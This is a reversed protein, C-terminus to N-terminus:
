QGVVIYGAWDMPHAFPCHDESVNLGNQQTEPAPPQEVDFRRMAVLADTLMGEKRLEKVTVSRLWRQAESLARSPHMLENGNEDLYHKFFRSCLLMAADDYVAWLSCIVAQAGALLLAAPLGIHEDPLTTASSIGSECSSLYVLRTNRLYGAGSLLRKVTLRKGGGLDIGSDLANKWDYQSHCAVHLVSAHQAEQLFTELTASTGFLATVRESGLTKRIHAVEEASYKLETFSSNLPRSVSLVHSLGRSDDRRRLSSLSPVGTTNWHEGFHTGDALVGSVVPLQNLEGPLSFVIRCTQSVGLSILFDHVPQLLVSGLLELVEHIVMNWQLTSAPLQTNGFRDLFTEGGLALRKYTDHWRTAHEEADFFLVERLKGLGLSGIDLQQVGLETHVLASCQDESVMLVQIVVLGDQATSLSLQDVSSFDDDPSHLRVLDQIRRWRNACETDSGKARAIALAREERILRQKENDPLASRSAELLVHGYTWQVARGRDIFMASKKLDQLKIACFAAKAYDQAILYPAREVIGSSLAPDKLMMQWTEDLAAFADMARSWQQQVYLLRFLAQQMRSFLAPARFRSTLEIAQLYAKYALALEHRDKTMTALVQRYAGLDFLLRAMTSSRGSTMRQIEDIAQVLTDIAEAVIERSLRLKGVRFRAQALSHLVAMRRHPDTEYHSVLDQLIPMTEEIMGASLSLSGAEIKARVWIETILAANPTTIPKVLHPEVISMLEQYVGIDDWQRANELFATGLNVISNSKEESTLGDYTLIAKLWSISDKVKQPDGTLEGMRLLVVAKANVLKVSPQKAYLPVFVSDVLTHADELLELDSFLEGTRIMDLAVETVMGRDLTAEPTGSRTILVNTFKKVEKVDNMDERVAFRTLLALMQTLILRSNGSKISPHKLSAREYISTVTEIDGSQRAVLLASWLEDALQDLDTNPPKETNM